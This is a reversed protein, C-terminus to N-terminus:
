ATHELIAGVATEWNARELGHGAGELALLRAGPIEEALAEGHRIPVCAAPFEQPFRCGEDALTGLFRDLHRMAGTPLDHLVLSVPSSAGWRPM